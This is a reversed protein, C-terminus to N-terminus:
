PSATAPSWAPVARCQQRLRYQLGYDVVSTAPEDTTWTITATTDTVVAQVNSIVPPTVDGGGSGPPLGDITFYDVLATYAPNPGANGGFVGAATVELTYSFRAPWPGTPATM